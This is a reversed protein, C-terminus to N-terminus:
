VLVNYPLSLDLFTPLYKYLEDARFGKFLWPREETCPNYPWFWARCSVKGQGFRPYSEGYFLRSFDLISSSDKSNQRSQSTPESRHLTRLWLLVIVLCKVVLLWLRSVFRRDVDHALILTLPLQFSCIHLFGYAYTFSGPLFAKNVLLGWAFVAGIHGDIVEGVAWPGAHSVHAFNISPFKKNKPGFFVCLKIPLTLMKM